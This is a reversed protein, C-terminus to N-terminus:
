IRRVGFWPIDRGLGLHREGVWSIDRVLGLYTEGWGM